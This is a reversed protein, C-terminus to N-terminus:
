WRPNEKDGCKKVAYKVLNEMPSPCGCKTCRKAVKGMVNTEKLFPCALCIAWRRAAEEESCKLANGKAVEKASDVLFTGFSVAQDILRPKEDSM